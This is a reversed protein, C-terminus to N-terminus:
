PKSFAKERGLRLQRKEQLQTQKESTANQSAAVHPWRCCVTSRLELCLSLYLHANERLAPTGVDVSDRTCIEDSTETHMEHLSEAM